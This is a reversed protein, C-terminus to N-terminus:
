DGLGLPVTAYKSEDPMKIDVNKYEIEYFIYSKNYGTYVNETAIEKYRSNHSVTSSYYSIKDSSLYYQVISEVSGSVNKYIDRNDGTLMFDKFKRTTVITFYNKNVYFKYKDKSNIVHIEESYYYSKCTSSLGGILDLFNVNLADDLSDNNYFSYESDYKTKELTQNNYKEFSDLVYTEDYSVDTLTLEGDVNTKDYEKGKIQCNTGDYSVTRDLDYKIVQVTKSGKNRIKSKIDHFAKTTYVYSENPDGYLRKAPYGLNYKDDEELVKKPEFRESIAEYAKLLQGEFEMASVERGKPKLESTVNAKCGSLLVVGLLLCAYSKKKM